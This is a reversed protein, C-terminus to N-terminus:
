QRSAQNQAATPKSPSTTSTPSQQLAPPPAIPIGRPLRELVSDDLSGTEEDPRLTFVKLKM